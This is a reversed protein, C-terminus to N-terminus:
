APGGFTCEYKTSPSAPHLCLSGNEIGWFQQRKGLWGIVPNTNLQFHIFHQSQVTWDCKIVPTCPCFCIEPWSLGALQAPTRSNLCTQHSEGQELKCKYFPAVYAKQRKGSWRKANVKPHLYFLLGKFPGKKNINLSNRGYPSCEGANNGCGYAKHSFYNCAM